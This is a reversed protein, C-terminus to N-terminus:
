NRYARGRPLVHLVTVRHADTDMDLRVRWDGVRLRWEDAGGHLRILDGQGTEALRSVAQGVRRAM